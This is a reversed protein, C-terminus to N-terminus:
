CAQLKGVTTKNPILLPTEEDEVTNCIVNKEDLQDSSLLPSVRNSQAGHLQLFIKTVVVSKQREM